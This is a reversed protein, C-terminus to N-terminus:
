EPARSRAALEHREEPSMERYAKWFTQFSATLETGYTPSTAAQRLTLQGDQVAAAMERLLPNDGRALQDLIRRLAHSRDEDGGTLDDLYDM